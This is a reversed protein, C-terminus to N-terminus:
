LFLDLVIDDAKSSNALAIQCLQVPKQTPHIYEQVNDRRVSRITTKGEKEAEKAKRLIALMQADNKSKM